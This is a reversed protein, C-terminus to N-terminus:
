LNMIISRPSNRPPLSLNTCLLFSFAYLLPVSISGCSLWYVFGTLIVLQINDHLDPQTKFVSSRPLGATKMHNKNNTSANRICKNIRERTSLQPWLNQANDIINPHQVDPSGVQWFLFFGNSPPPPPPCFFFNYVGDRLILTWTLRGGGVFVHGRGKFIMVYDVISRVEISLLIACLRAYICKISFM